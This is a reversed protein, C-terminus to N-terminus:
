AVGSPSRRARGPGRALKWCSEILWRQRDGKPLAVGLTVFSPLERDIARPEVISLEVAWHRARTRGPWFSRGAADFSGRKLSGSGGAYSM